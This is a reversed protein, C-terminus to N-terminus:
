GDMPGELGVLKCRWITREVGPISLAAEAVLSARYEAIPDQMDTSDAPEDFDVPGPIFGWDSWRRRDLSDAM